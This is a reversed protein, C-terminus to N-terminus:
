LAEVQKLDREKHHGWVVDARGDLSWLAYETKRRPKTRVVITGKVPYTVENGVSNHLVIQLNEVTKGDRTKYTKTVDIWNEKPTNTTGWSVGEPASQLDKM